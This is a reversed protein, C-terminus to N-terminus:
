FGLIAKNNSRDIFGVMTQPAKYLKVYQGSYECDLGSIMGEDIFGDKRVTDITLYGVGLSTINQFFHTGQSPEIQYGPIASEVIMRAESIESWLVPIGLWPDSSGWRGPGILAYSAGEKKMRENLGAIESAMERTHASDFTSSPVHILYKMNDVYGSGLAKASKLIVNSISEAAKEYTTTTDESFEGVPRVQLLKLVLGPGSVGNFIDAAFEMEVDCMLERRCIELLDKIIEALPYRGYKLISDFTIVRPGAVSVGPVMRNNEMSFTSAVLEPYPFGKLAESVQPHVLNVGENLSIKFSGPRLDLAFM